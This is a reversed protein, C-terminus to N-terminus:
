CGQIAQNGVEMKEMFLNGADYLRISAINRISQLVDSEFRAGTVAIDGNYKKNIFGSLIYLGIYFPIFSEIIIPKSALRITRLLM